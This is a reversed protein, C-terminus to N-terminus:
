GATQGSQATSRLVHPTHLNRSPLEDAVVVEAWTSNAIFNYASRHDHACAAQLAIASRLLVSEVRHSGHCKCPEKYTGAHRVQKGHDDVFCDYQVCETLLMPLVVQGGGYILSGVRYFTEFWHLPQAYHDSYSTFARLVLAAILIVAWILLLCLGAARNLGFSVIGDNSELAQM